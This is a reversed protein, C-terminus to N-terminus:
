GGEHGEDEGQGAVLRRLGGLADVLRDLFHTPPPRLYRIRSLLPNTTSHLISLTSAWFFMVEGYGIRKDLRLM